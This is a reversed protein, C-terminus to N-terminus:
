PQHSETCEHAAQGDHYDAHAIHALARSQELLAQLAPAAAEPRAPQQLRQLLRERERADRQRLLADQQRDFRLRGDVWTSRVLSFSSLPPGNWLVVDASNARSSPASRRPSASSPPGPQHDGPGAAQEPALGGHRVAKAAETNLRRALEADDSNLSTLVGARHLMAANGPVADFAEAKFGWWDSFTSAGAGLAAIEAAVKYGELVHQFAAVKLGLTKALRAFMLIEDARYATCM